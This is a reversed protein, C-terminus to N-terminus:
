NIREAIYIRDGDENKKMGMENTHGDIDPELLLL